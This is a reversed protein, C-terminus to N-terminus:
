KLYYVKYNIKSIDKILSEGFSNDDDYNHYKNRIMWIHTIPKFSCGLIERRLSNCKKCNKCIDIIANNM